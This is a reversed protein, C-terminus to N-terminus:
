NGAGATIEIRNNSSAAHNWLGATLGETAPNPYPMAPREATGSAVNVRLAGGSDKEAEAIMNVFGLSQRQAATMNDLAPNGVLDCKAYGLEDPAASYGETSNGVLCFRGPFVEIRVVGRFSQAALQALLTRVSEVRAGALPVEGYPVSEVTVPPAPIISLNNVSQSGRAMAPFSGASTSVPVAANLQGALTTLQRNADGFQAVQAELTANQERLHKLDLGLWLLGGALILVILGAAIALNRATHSPEPPLEGGNEVIAADTPTAATRLDSVIRSAYSDLSAIVFRRLETTQERILAEFQGRLDAVAPRASSSDSKGISGGYPSSGQASASDALVVVSPTHAQAAVKAVEAEHREPMLNLQYLVKSVDVPKLQKPLVGTAGLARAQGVYLDGEQSTYMMIPITATRPNNKIAQVAQFGDMGPMLHDMFIVDPRHTVLYDLAQEASEATDVDLNHQELMRSLVVRASRSDDVILARRSSM